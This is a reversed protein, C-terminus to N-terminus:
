STEVSWTYWALHDRTRDRICMQYLEQGPKLEVISQTKRTTFGPITNAANGVSFALNPAIILEEPSVQLNITGNEQLVPIMNLRMGFPEFTVSALSAGATAIQQVIPIEGGALFSTYLLCTVTLSTNSASRCSRSM